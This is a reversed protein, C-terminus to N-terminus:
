TDGTIIGKAGSIRKEVKAIPTKSLENIIRFYPASWTIRGGTPQPHKIIEQEIM